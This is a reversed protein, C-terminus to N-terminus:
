GPPLNPLSHSVPPCRPVKYFDGASITTNPRPFHHCLYVLHVYALDLKCGSIVAHTRTCLSPGPHSRPNQGSCSSSHPYKSIIHPLAPPSQVRGAFHPRSLWITQSCFTLASSVRPLWPDRLVGKSCSKQLGHLRPNTPLM